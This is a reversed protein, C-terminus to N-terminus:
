ELQAAFFASPDAPAPTGGLSWRIITPDANFVALTSADRIADPVRLTVVGDGLPPDPPELGALM